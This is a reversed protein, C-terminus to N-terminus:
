HRANALSRAGDQSLLIPEILILSGESQRSEKGAFCGPTKPRAAYALFTPRRSSERSDLRCDPRPSTRSAGHGEEVAHRAQTLRIAHVVSRAQVHLARVAHWGGARQGCRASWSELRSEFSRRARPLTFRPGGRLWSCTARSLTVRFPDM